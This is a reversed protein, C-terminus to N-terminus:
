DRYGDFGQHAMVEGVLQYSKPREQVALDGFLDGGKVVAGTSATTKDPIVRLKGCSDRHGLYTVWVNSVLEGSSHGALLSTPGKREVQM